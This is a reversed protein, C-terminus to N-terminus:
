KRRSFTLPCAYIGGIYRFDLDIGRLLRFPQTYWAVMDTMETDDIIPPDLNLPISYAARENQRRRFSFQVDVSKLCPSQMLAVILRNLHQKICKASGSVSPEGSNGPAQAFKRPIWVRLAIKRVFKVESNLDLLERDKSNKSCIQLKAYGNLCWEKEEWMHETLIDVQFTLKKRMFDAFEDNTQRNVRLIAPESGQSYSKRLLAHPLNDLSFYTPPGAPREGYEVLRDIDTEERTSPILGPRPILYEYIHLRM